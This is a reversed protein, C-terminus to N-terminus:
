GPAIHEVSGDRLLSVPWARSREGASMARDVVIVGLRDLRRLLRRLRGPPLDANQLPKDFAVYYLDIWLPMWLAHDVIYRQLEAYVEAASTPDITSRGCDIMDDLAPDNIHSM